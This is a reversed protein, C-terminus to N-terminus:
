QVILIGYQLFATYSNKIVNKKKGYKWMIKYVTNNGTM